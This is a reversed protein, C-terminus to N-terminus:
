PLKVAAEPEMNKQCVALQPGQSQFRGTAILAPDNLNVPWQGRRISKTRRSCRIGDGHNHASGTGGSPRFQHCPGVSVQKGTHAVDLSAEADTLVVIEGRAAVKLFDVCPQKLPHAAGVAYMPVNADVFVPDTM